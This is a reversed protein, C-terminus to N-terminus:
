WVMDGPQVQGAVTMKHLQEWTLPGHCQDERLLFWPNPQPVVTAAAAPHPALPKGEPPLLAGPLSKNPQPPQPVLLRQGCRPCGVKTGAQEPPTSLVTKCAPCGFRIM